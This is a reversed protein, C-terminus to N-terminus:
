AKLRIYYSKTEFRMSFDNQPYKVGLMYLILGTCLQLCLHAAVALNRWSCGPGAVHSGVPTRLRQRRWICRNWPHQSTPVRGGYFWHYVADRLDWQEARGTVESPIDCNSLVLGERDIKSGKWDMCNIGDTTNLILHIHDMKSGQQFRSGQLYFHRGPSGLEGSGRGAWEWLAKGWPYWTNRGSEMPCHQHPSM